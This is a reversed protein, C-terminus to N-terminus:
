LHQILWCSLIMGILPSIYYLLFVPLLVKRNARHEEENQENAEEILSEYYKAKKVNQMFLLSTVYVVMMIGLIVTKPAPQYIHAWTFLIVTPVMLLECAVLLIIKWHIDNIEDKPVCNLRNNSLMIKVIPTIYKLGIKYLM